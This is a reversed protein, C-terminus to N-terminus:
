DTDGGSNYVSIFGPTLTCKAANEQAIPTEVYEIIEKIKDVYKVEVVKVTKVLQETAVTDQTLQAETAQIALQAFENRVSEERIDGAWDWLFYGVLGITLASVVLSVIFKYAEPILTIPNVLKM